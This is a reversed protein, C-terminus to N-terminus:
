KNKLNNLTNLFCKRSAIRPHHKKIQDYITKYDGQITYYFRGAKEYEYLQRAWKACCLDDGDKFFSCCDETSRFLQTVKIPYDVKPTSEENDRVFCSVKNENDPISSSPIDGNSEELMAEDIYLPCLFGNRHYNDVIGYLKMFDTVSNRLNGCKEILTEYIGIADELLERDSSLNEQIFWSMSLLDMNPLKISNLLKKYDDFCTQLPSSNVEKILEDEKVLCYLNYREMTQKHFFGKRDYFEKNQIITYLYQTDEVFRQTKEFM